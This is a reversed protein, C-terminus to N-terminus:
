IRKKLWDKFEFFNQPAVGHGVPFESYTHKIGLKNLITPTKRAWEVLDYPHYPKQLRKQAVGLFICKQNLM